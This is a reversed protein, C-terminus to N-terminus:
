GKDSYKERKTDIIKKAEAEAEVYSHFGRREYLWHEHNGLLDTQQISLSYNELATKKVWAANIRTPTAYTYDVRISKGYPIGDSSLAFKLEENELKLGKVKYRLRYLAYTLIFYFLTIAAVLLKYEAM